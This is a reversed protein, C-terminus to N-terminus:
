VLMLCATSLCTDFMLWAYTMTRGKLNKIRREQPAAEQWDEGIGKGSCTQSTIQPANATVANWGTAKAVGHGRRRLSHLM